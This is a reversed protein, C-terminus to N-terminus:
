AAGARPSLLSICAGDDSSFPPRRIAGGSWVTPASASSSSFRIVGLFSVGCALFFLTLTWLGTVASLAVLRWSLLFSCGIPAAAEESEFSKSSYAMTLSSFIELIAGDITAPVAGASSCFMWTFSSYSVGASSFFSSSLSSSAFDPNELTLDIRVSRLFVFGVPSSTSADFDAM